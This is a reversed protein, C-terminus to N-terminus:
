AELIEIEDNLDKMEDLLDVSPYDEMEYTRHRDCLIFICDNYKIKKPLEENNAMKNLLQIITMKIM